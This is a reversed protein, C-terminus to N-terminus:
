NWNLVCLGIKQSEVTCEYNGEWCQGSAVFIRIQPERPEDLPVDIDRSIIWGPDRCM